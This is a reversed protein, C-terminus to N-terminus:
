LMSEDTMDPIENEVVKYWACIMCVVALVIAILGFYKKKMDM